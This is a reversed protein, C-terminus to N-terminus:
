SQAPAGQIRPGELQQEKNRDLVAAMISNLGVMGSSSTSGIDDDRSVSCTWVDRKRRRQDDRRGRHKLLLVKVGESTRLQFRRRWSVERRKAIGHRTRMM